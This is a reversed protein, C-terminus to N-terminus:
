IEEEGGCHTIINANIAAAECLDHEYEGTSSMVIQWTHGSHTAIQLTLNLIDISLLAVSAQQTVPGHM